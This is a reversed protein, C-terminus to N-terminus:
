EKFLHLLNDSLKELKDLQDKLNEIQIDVKEKLNQIEINIHELTNKIRGDIRHNMDKISKEIIVIIEERDEKMKDSLKPMIEETYVKKIRNDIRKGIKGFVAFSTLILTFITGIHSGAIAEWVLYFINDNNTTM